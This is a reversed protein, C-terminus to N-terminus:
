DSLAHIFEVTASGLTGAARDVISPDLLPRNPTRLRVNRVLNSWAVSGAPFTTQFIASARAARELDGSLLATTVYSEISSPHSPDIMLAEELADLASRQNGLADEAYALSSLASVRLDPRICRLSVAKALPISESYAGRLNDAVVVLLQASEMEAVRRGLLAIERYSVARAKGSLLHGLVRSQDGAFCREVGGPVDRLSPSAPEASAVWYPYRASAETDQRCKVVFSAHLFLWLEERHARLLHREATSLGPATWGLELNELPDVYEISPNLALGRGGQKVVDELVQRVDPDLEAIWSGM